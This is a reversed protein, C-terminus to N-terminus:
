TYEIEYLHARGREEVILPINASESTRSRFTKTSDRSLHKSFTHSSSKIKWKSSTHREIVEGRAEESVRRTERLYM